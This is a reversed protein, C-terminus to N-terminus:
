GERLPQLGTFGAAAMDSFVKDTIGDPNGENGDWNPNTPTSYAIIEIVEDSVYEPIVVEGCAVASFALPIMLLVSILKILKNRM